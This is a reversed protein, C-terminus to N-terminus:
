LLTHVRSVHTYLMMLFIITRQKITRQKLFIYLKLINFRFNDNKTKLFSCLKLCYKSVSTAVVRVKLTLWQSLIHQRENGVLATVTADSIFFMADPCGM